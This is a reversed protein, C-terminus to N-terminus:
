SGMAFVVRVYPDSQCAYAASGAGVIGVGRKYVITECRLTAVVCTHLLTGGAEVWCVLLCSGLLILGGIWMDIRKRAVLRARGSSLHLHLGLDVVTREACRM